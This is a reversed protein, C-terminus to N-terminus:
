NIGGGGGGGSATKYHYASGIDIAAGGDSLNTVHWLFDAATSSVTNYTSYSLTDGAVVSIDVNGGAPNGGSNVEIGNKYIYFRRNVSISTGLAISWRITIATNIGSVTLVNSSATSSITTININTWDMAGVSVDVNSKGYWDSFSMQAGSAAAILGRVDADNISIETGSTGGVEVHIDNLSIQGSTQLPM